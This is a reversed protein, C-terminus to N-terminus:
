CSTRSVRMNEKLRNVKFFPWLYSRPISSAIVQSKSAKPKISLTQRFDGGLLVSKGGFPLAPNDLLDRLSRDLSELCRRDSMPAEDWIILSTELV